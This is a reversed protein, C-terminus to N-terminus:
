AGTDLIWTGLVGVTVLMVGVFAMALWFFARLHRERERHAARYALFDEYLVVATVDGQQNTCNYVPLAEHKKAPEPEPKSTKTDKAGLSAAFSAFDGM